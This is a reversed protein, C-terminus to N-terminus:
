SDGSADFCERPWVAVGVALGGVAEGLDEEASVEPWSLWFNVAEGLRTGNMWRQRTWKSACLSGVVLLTMWAYRASAKLMSKEGFRVYPLEAAELREATWVKDEQEYGHDCVTSVKHACFVGRWRGGLRRGVDARFWALPRLECGNVSCLALQARSRIEIVIDRPFRLKLPATPAVVSLTKASASCRSSCSVPLALPDNSMFPACLFLFPPLCILTSFILTATAAPTSISHDEGGLNFLLISADVLWGRLPQFLLVNVPIPKM